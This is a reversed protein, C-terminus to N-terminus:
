EPDDKIFDIDIWNEKNVYKKLIQFLEDEDEPLGLWGAGLDYSYVSWAGLLAERTEPSKRSNMIREMIDIDADYESLIDAKVTVLDSM